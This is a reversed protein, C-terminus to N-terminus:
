GWNKEWARELAKRAIEDQERFRRSEDAPVSACDLAHVLSGPDACGSTHGCDECRWHYIVNGVSVSTLRSM